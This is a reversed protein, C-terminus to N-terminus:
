LPKKAIISVWNDMEKTELIAFGVSQLKNIVTNEKQKIIGSTIFLGNPVLQNYAAKPFKIIIEALINAIIINAKMRIGTLLDNKRITLQGLVRNLEANIKTSKIAIDDIDVSMVRKAGLKAAIISLIGSGCGVDIVQDNEDLYKELSRASLITSPHTGTGFALGPDLNIVLEDPHSKQYDQWMPKVTIYNTLHTTHYFKKWENEWDEEMVHNTTFTLSGLNIGYQNLQYVKTMISEIQKNLQENNPLYFTLFVGKTPFENPDLNYVEDYRSGNQIPETIMVGSIGMEYLINTIPDVAEQSTHLKIELWSLTINM